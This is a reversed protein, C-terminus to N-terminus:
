NDPIWVWPPSPLHLAVLSHFGLLPPM